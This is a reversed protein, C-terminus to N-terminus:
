MCLSWKKFFVMCARVMMADSRKCFMRGPHPSASLGGGFASLGGGFAVAWSRGGSIDGM